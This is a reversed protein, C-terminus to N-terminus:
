ERSSRAFALRQQEDLPLQRDWRETRDLSPVLDGLDV